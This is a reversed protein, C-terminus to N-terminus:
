GTSSGPDSDGGTSSPSSTDTTATPSPGPEPTTASSTEPASNKVEDEGGTMDLSEADFVIEDFAILGASNASPNGLRRRLIWVLATAAIMSGRNLGNQWEVATMGTAKEVAMLEVNIFRNPDFEYVIGGAKIKM